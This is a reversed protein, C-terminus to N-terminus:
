RPGGYGNGYGYGGYGYGYGGYGYGGYGTGGYQGTGYCYNPYYCSSGGPYTPNTPNTPYTPNASPATTKPTSPRPTPKTTPATSSSTTSHRPPGSPAPAPSTDESDWNVVEMQLAPGSTDLTWRQPAEDDRSKLVLAAKEKASAPTLALDQNWRPVLAGQLTFDYRVNKTDPKSPGTCRALQVSYGLHSDLCLDPADQLRLLGDSEYSWRPSSESGCPALETETGAAAKNGVLGICLGTAANRLRGSMAGNASDGSGIWSPNGGPARGTGSSAADTPTNGSMGDDDGSGFAAWLVLPVLVLGSVTLVALTLNRRRM